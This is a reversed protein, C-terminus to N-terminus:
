FVDAVFLTTDMSGLPRLSSSFFSVRPSDTGVALLSGSSLQYLGCYHHGRSYSARLAGTAVDYASLGGVARPGLVYLVDGAPSLVAKSAPAGYALAPVPFDVQSRVRFSHAPDVVIARGIGPKSLLLMGDPRPTVTVAAAKAFVEEIAAIRTSTLHGAASWVQMDRGEVLRAIDGDPLTIVPEGAPWPGPSPVSLRASGGGLPYVSLRSVPAPRGKAAQGPQPEETTWLFLDHANAAATSLALSPADGLSFPGTFEGTRRDFYALEHHSRWTAALLSRTGGDKKTIMRWNSPSTIALVLAVVSTGPAFVATPLINTRAPLGALRLSGQAAIAFSATDILSLTVSAASEAEDVTVLALTSQDPSMVPGAALKSAMAIPSSRVLARAAPGAAGQVASSGREATGPLGYVFFHGPGRGVAVADTAATTIASASGAFALDPLVVLAAAGVGGALMARRSPGAGARGPKMVRRAHRM